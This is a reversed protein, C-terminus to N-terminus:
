KKLLKEIRELLDSPEVPKEIYDDAEFQEGDTAPSFKLGTKETVASIVLIPIKRLEPDHKLRYCITFGDDLRGMMIDLLILDPRMKKIKEMASAKDSATDVTYEEKSKLIARISKIYGPDDDVILIKNQSNM